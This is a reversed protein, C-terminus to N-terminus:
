STANRDCLEIQREAAGLSQFVRRDLPWIHHRYAYVVYGNPKGVIMGLPEGNREVLFREETQLATM